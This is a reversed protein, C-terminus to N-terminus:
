RYDAGTLSTLVSQQWARLQRDLREVIEPHAAALNNKEAADGRLNFLERGSDRTGDVVLKYPGDIIARPGSYDAEVISRHHFNQFNRTPTGDPGLKM